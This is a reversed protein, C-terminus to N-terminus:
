SHQNIRTNETETLLIVLLKFLLFIDASKRDKIFFAKIKLSDTLTLHM